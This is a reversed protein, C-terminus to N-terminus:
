WVTRVHPYDLIRRDATVVPMRNIRAAAVLLRDVPDRHFDGPLSFAEQVTELDIVMASWGNDTLAREFWTRWHPATEIKGSGALCAVEACSIVSVWVRTDPETLLRGAEPSLRDPDSVSWIVTCTDLLINV